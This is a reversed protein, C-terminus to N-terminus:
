VALTGRIVPVVAGRLYVSTARGNEIMASLHIQSPRGMDEGQHILWEHRGNDLSQFECLAGVLAAAASGTAPDEPIGVGPAFLRAHIERGNTWDAMTFPYVPPGWARRFATEWCATDVRARSLAERSAVRVFTFPVGAEFGVPAAIVEEASLSLAAAADNVGPATGKSPLKPAAISAEMLGDPRRRVEAHVPGAATHMLFAGKDTHGDRAAIVTATGVTPHGAFPLEAKPTFIRLRPAGSGDDLVFVTESLNMEGAIAQMTAQPLGSGDSFVALPNGGFRQTTFVDLTVFDYERAM